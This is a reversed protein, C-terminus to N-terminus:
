VRAGHEVEKLIGAACLAELADYINDIKSGMIVSFNELGYDKRFLIPRGDDLENQMLVSKVEFLSGEYRCHRLAPVYRQADRLMYLFNPRPTQNLRGETVSVDDRWSHHPTYRVHTLSHLGRAPFPMTSFFPGDMMTIGVRTLADPVSILAVEALEHKLPLLALGSRRLLSNISSYACNIVKGAILYGGNRLHVAIRGGREPSVRDVGTECHIAVTAQDLKAQLNRRLAVADFAFETVSFADEILDANLLSRIRESVPRLPAGIVQCYRRFQNVSVKSGNKAIAYIQDFSQDICDSFDTVFRPFNAASRMGTLYSRPYHYGNHVRAQNVYSARSMLEPECELVAVHRLSSGLAAAVTCGYFGGGIVVADYAERDVAQNV